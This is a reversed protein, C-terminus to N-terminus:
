GAGYGLVQLVRAAIVAIALLAVSVWFLSWIPGLVLAFWGLFFAVLAITVGVWAAPTRGHHVHKVDQKRTATM